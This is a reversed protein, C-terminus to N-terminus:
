ARAVGGPQSRRAAATRLVRVDQQRITGNLLEEVAVRIEPAVQILRDRSWNALGYRCAIEMANVYGIPIQNDSLAILADLRGQVLVESAYGAPVADYLKAVRAELFTLRGVIDQHLPEAVVGRLIGPRRMAVLQRGKAMVAGMEPVFKVGQFRGIVSAGLAIGVGTHCAESYISVGVHPYLKLASEREKITEM